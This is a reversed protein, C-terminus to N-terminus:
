FVNMFDCRSADVHRTWRGVLESEVKALFTERAAAPSSRSRSRGYSRNPSGRATATNGALVRQQEAQLQAAAAAAADGQYTGFYTGRRASTDVGPTGPQTLFHPAEEGGEEVQAAVQERYAMWSPSAPSDARPSAAIAAPADVAGRQSRRGDGGRSFAKRAAPKLADAAQKQRDSAAARHRRQLPSAATNYCSLKPAKAVTTKNTWKSGNSGKAAEARKKREERAYRQRAVFKDTGASDLVSPERVSLAERERRRRSSSLAKGRRRSTSLKPQFTCQMRPLYVTASLDARLM